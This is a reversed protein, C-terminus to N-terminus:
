ETGAPQTGDAPNRALPHAALYGAQMGAPSLHTYIQTTSLQAHGLLEQIVRLDAGHQLLHTAFSHRLTHPTPMGQLGADLSRQRLIRQVSRATLRRGTRRNIFLAGDDDRDGLVKPREALWSELRQRAYGGVLVLREKRGKGMVRLSEPLGYVQALDLSVLESVRLGTSYLLEILARDRVALPSDGPFNLLALTQAESLVLPLRQDKRIGKRGALPDAPLDEPHEQRLFRAFAKLAALKLRLTARQRKWAKQTPIRPMVPASQAALFSEVTQRLDWGRLEPGWLPAGLSEEAVGQLSRVHATWERVAQGYNRLTRPSYNRVIALYNLFEGLRDLPPAPTGTM